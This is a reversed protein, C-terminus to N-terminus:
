TNVILLYPACLILLSGIVLTFFVTRKESGSWRSSASCNWGVDAPNSFPLSMTITVNSPVLYHGALFALLLVSFRLSQFYKSGEYFVGIAEISM